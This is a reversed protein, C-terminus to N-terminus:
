PRQYAKQDPSLSAPNLEPDVKSDRLMWKLTQMEACAFYTRHGLRESEDLQDRELISRM